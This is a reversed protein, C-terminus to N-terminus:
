EHKIPLSVKFTTGNGDSNNIVEVSGNHGDLIKKVVFLGLGSGSVNDKYANVGRTFKDFIKKKEKEEVGVGTDRVYVEVNKKNRRVDIETGGTRTYKCANDILNMFVQAMYDAKADVEPIDDDVTGFRLYLCKKDYDPQLTAITDKIMEVVSIKEFKGHPTGGELELANLMDNTINNLRETSVYIRSLMEHKKEASLDDFDGDAWMSIMGRISTLPTRLQHSTIHLFENKMELLEKLKVNAKKLNKNLRSLEAMQRNSKEYLRANEIAPGIHSAFGKVIEKKRETFFDIHNTNSFIIAGVVSGSSFLPISIVSKAGLMRQVECIKDQDIFNKYFDGFDGSVYAQKDKITRMILDDGETIKEGFDDMSLGLEKNIKRTLESNTVTHIRISEGDKDCLAIVARVYGLYGLNGPVSDVIAQSIRKLNLDQNVMDSVGLLMHLDKNREALSLNAKRIKEGIEGERRISKILQVGFYLFTALVFTKLIRMSLNDSLFLIDVILIISMIVIFVQSVLTKVGMLNDKAIAYAIFALFIIASYDGFRAYEVTGTVIPIIVNFFINIFAFSVIGVSFYQMKLRQDTSLRMYRKASYYITLAAIIIAFVNFISNWEGFITEAGWSSIIAERVIRDTWLSIIALVLGIFSFIRGIIIAKGQENLFHVIYFFYFAVLFLAVFSVNARYYMTALSADNSINALFAFDVWMIVSFTMIAFWQNLDRGKNSFYVWIALLLGSLNILFVM